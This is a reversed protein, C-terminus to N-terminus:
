IQLLNSFLHTAQQCVQIRNKKEMWHYDVSGLFHKLFIHGNSRSRMFIHKDIGKMQKPGITLTVKPYCGIIQQAQTHKLFSASSVSWLQVFINSSNPATKYNIIARLDCCGKKELGLWFATKILILSPNSNCSTTHFQEEEQLTCLEVVKMLHM